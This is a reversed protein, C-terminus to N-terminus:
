TEAFYIEPDILLYNSSTIAKRVQVRGYVHGDRITTFSVTIKRKYTYAPGSGNWTSSDSTYTTANVPDQLYTTVEDFIPTDDTGLYWVQLGIEHDTLDYGDCSFYVTATYGGAPLYSAMVPTEHPLSTVIYTSYSYMETIVHWCYNTGDLATSGSRYYASKGITRGGFGASALAYRSKSSGSNNIEATGYYGVVQNTYLLPTTSYLKCNALLSFCVGTSASADFFSSSASASSLDVGRLEVNGDINSVLSLSRKSAGSVVCNEVALTGAGDAKFVNGATTSSDTYTISCDKLLAFTSGEAFVFGVGNTSNAPITIYCDRLGVSGGSSGSFFLGKANIKLGTVLIGCSYGNLIVYYGTCNIQNATGAQYTVPNSGSTASIIRVVDTGNGGGLNITKNATYTYTDVSDHGVYIIDGPNFSLATDLAVLSTAAKAWTDYPATASGGDDVYYITM